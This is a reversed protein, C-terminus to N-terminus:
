APEEEKINMTLYPAHRTVYQDCACGEEEEDGPMEHLHQLVWIETPLGDAAAIGIQEGVLENLDDPYINKEMELSGEVIVAVTYYHDMSM